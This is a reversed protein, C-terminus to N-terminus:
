PATALPSSGSSPTVLRLAPDGLLTFTEIVDRQGQNEPSLSRKAELIAQGVTPSEGNLLVNLLARNLLGQDSSLTLSSPAFVAVAGGDEALLLEEAMSEREPHGFFGLLCSMLIMMPQRGDNGLSAIQESAFLRDESWTDISGHGVYNVILSGASLEEAVVSAPDEVSAGYVRSVVYPPPVSEEALLDSQAAFSAEAGDAVLLIRQRWEGPPAGQEYAIIKDVVTRAEDATSVPLRGIAMDPLVDEDDLCVFWNDSLTEGSFATEVLHTPVISKNPGKLNDRYDYSAEGVLLVFEPAPVAWNARAYRLLQRIAAPDVLGYSFQDYVEDMGIAMVSLGQDRRWGVLPQLAAKFDENTIILYDAQNDASRLDVSEAVAAIGSPSLLGAKGVALYRHDAPEGECFSLAYQSGDTAVNTGTVRVAELPDSIDFLWVENTSFGSVVHSGGQGSFELRDDRAVFLRQHELELWDVLVIDARAGTDAVPKVELVNEGDELCSYPVSEEVVYPEQGDWRADNLFCENLSIAVHHDPDVPDSTYGLLALRLQGDGPALDVVDESFAASEPALLKDWYWHGEGPATVAAYHLDEEGHVTDVFSTAPAGCPGSSAARELMRRGGAAELDLWYVNTHSYPSTNARGYFLLTRDTGEGSVAVSVQAGQNSLGITDEDRNSVDLGAAELDAYSVVYMGEQEVAVKALTPSTAVPSPVPTPSSCAVLLAVTFLLPLLRRRQKLEELAGWGPFWSAAGSPPM